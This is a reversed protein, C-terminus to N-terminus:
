MDTLNTKSAQQRIIIIIITNQLQDLKQWGKLDNAVSPLTIIIIIDRLKATLDRFVRAVRKVTTVKELLDTHENLSIVRNEEM